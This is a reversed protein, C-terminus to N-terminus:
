NDAFPCLIETADPRGVLLRGDGSGCFFKRDLRPAAELQNRLQHLSAGVDATKVM